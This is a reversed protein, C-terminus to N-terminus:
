GTAPRSLSVSGAPFDVELRHGALLGTGVLVKDVPAFTAEVQRREGDFELTVLFCDEEVVRGAALNSQVVGIPIADIDLRLSEPLEVDGNFGTDVIAELIQQAIQLTIIPVGERSM